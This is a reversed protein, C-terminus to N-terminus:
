GCIRYACFSAKVNTVPWQSVYIHRSYRRQKYLKRIFKSIKATKSRHSKCSVSVSELKTKYNYRFVKKGTQLMVVM